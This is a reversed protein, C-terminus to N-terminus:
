KSSNSSDTDEEQKGKKEVEIADIDLEKSVEQQEEEEPEQVLVIVENPDTILTTNASISIDGAHINDGIKAIVSLDVTFKNVLHAADAEVEIEYLVKVLNGGAKVAPSEGVFDLPISVIVKAGKEIAYFDIHRSISTVPDRDVNHILVSLPKKDFGELAIVSSEGADKFVREFEKLSISIPTSAQKPGYVVAPIIGNARLKAARKGFIERKEVSLTLM